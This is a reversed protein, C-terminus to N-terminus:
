KCECVHIYYNSYNVNVTRNYQYMGVTTIIGHCGICPPVYNPRDFRMLTNHSM